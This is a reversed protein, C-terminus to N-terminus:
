TPGVGHNGTSVYDSEKANAYFTIKESEFNYPITFYLAASFKTIQWSESKRFYKNELKLTTNIYKSHPLGHTCM